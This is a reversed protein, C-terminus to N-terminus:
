ATSSDPKPGTVRRQLLRSMLDFWFPAGFSVMLATLSWGFLAAVAEIARQRKAAAADAPAVESRARWGISPVRDLFTTALESQRASLERSQELAIQLATIAGSAPDDKDCQGRNCHDVAVMARWLASGLAPSWVFADTTWFTGAIHQKGSGSESLNNTNFRKRMAALCGRGQDTGGASSLAVSKCLHNLWQEVKDPPWTSEAESPPLAVDLM